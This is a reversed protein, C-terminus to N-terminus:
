PRTVTECGLGWKEAYGGIPALAESDDDLWWGIVSGSRSVRLWTDIVPVTGIAVRAQASDQPGWERQDPGAWFEQLQTRQGKYSVEWFGEGSYSLLLLTDGTSFRWAPKSSSHMLEDDTLELDRKLVVVGPKRLHLDTVVDVTDGRKLTVAVSKNTPSAVLQMDRCAVAQYSPQCGEGECKNSFITPLAGSAISDESTGDREGRACGVAVVICTWVVAVHRM